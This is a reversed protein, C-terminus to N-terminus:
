EHTHKQNILSKADFLKIYIEQPEILYWTTDALSRARSFSAVLPFCSTIKDADVMLWYDHENDTEDIYEFVALGKSRNIIHICLNVTKNNRSTARLQFTHDDIKKFLNLSESFAGEMGSQILATDTLMTKNYWQSSFIYFKGKYRKVPYWKQPIQRMAGKDIDNNPKFFSLPTIKKFHYDLVSKYYASSTDKDIFMCFYIISGDQDYRSSDNRNIERVLFLTDNIMQQAYTHIAFFIFVFLWVLTKTFQNM